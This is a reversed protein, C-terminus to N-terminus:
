KRPMGFISSRPAHKVRISFSQYAERRHQAYSSRLNWFRITGKILNPAMRIRYIFTQGYQKKTSPNVIRPM